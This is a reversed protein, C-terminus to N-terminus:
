TRGESEAVSPADGWVEICLDEDVHRARPPYGLLAVAQEHVLVGDLPVGNTPHQWHCLVLEGGPALAARARRLTQILELPTLFYGVESLVVLDFEGEPIDQPVSGQEILSTPSAIRAAAVARASTDFALVQTARDALATTLYGDACGLELVRGYRSRGLMALLLARRREEYFSGANGWPDTGGDYMRDFAARRAIDHEAHGGRSVTPLTGHAAILTEVLRRGRALSTPGLIAAQEVRGNDNQPATSQSPFAELAARKRWCGVLSTESAVMSSWPLSQPDSWQWLWIPYHAVAAGTAASAAAAAAGVADHDTHGDDIWPALILTRQDVRRAIQDMLEAEHHHLGTDPLGLHALRAQPALGSVAREVERRRLTALRERARDGLGHQSREGATAVLVSIPVGLEALDTVLGGIGLTEDDPHASAVIVKSFSAATAARDLVPVTDWQPASWWLAESTGEQLHSFRTTPASM